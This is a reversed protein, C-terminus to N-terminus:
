PTRKRKPTKGNQAAKAKGEASTPGTSMGGHLKCRGNNYLNTRQCPSGARTRADCCMGRLVEPFTPLVTPSPRYGAAAWAAFAARHAANHARLLKRLEPTSSPGQNRKSPM